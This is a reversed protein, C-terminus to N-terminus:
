TWPCGLTGDLSEVLDGYVYGSGVRVEGDAQDFVASIFFVTLLFDAPNRITMHHVLARPNM